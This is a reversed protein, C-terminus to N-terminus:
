NAEAFAVQLDFTINDRIAKDGLQQFVSGSKYSIGWKTRDIDFSSAIKLMNEEETLMAQITVPHTQDKITLDGAVSYTGDENKTIETSDFSATPYTEVAFFDENSLHSVLADSGDDDNIQTMDVIFNAAVFAGNAKEISGSRLGVTGTHDNGAVKMGGEWALSSSEVALNYMADQPTAVAVEETPQEVVVPETVEQVPTSKAGLAYSVGAVVILSIAFIVNKMYETLLLIDKSLVKNEM